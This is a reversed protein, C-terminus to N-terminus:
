SQKEAICLYGLTYNRERDLFDLAPLALGLPVFLVAALPWLPAPFFQLANLCRRALLRFFGGAPAVELARLGAQELLRILGHRTFRFYDHPAQHVEWEQPAALFL